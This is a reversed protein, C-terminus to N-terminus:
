GGLRSWVQHGAANPLEPADFLEDPLAVEYSVSNVDVDTRTKHLVDEMTRRMATPVGQVNSVRDWREVKWLVNAPTYFERKHPLGTRESVWTVTRGYYWRERPVGQVKWTKEGDIEEEGLLEYTARMSVFGLDAYTFDSNLFSTYAEPSVITRVRRIFPSYVWQLDDAEGGEHMLAAAGRLPEPALVVVLYRSRRGDRKRAEGVTIPAAPGDASARFTLRRISPKVPELAAKMREVITGVEPPAALAPLVASAVLLLATKVVIAHM